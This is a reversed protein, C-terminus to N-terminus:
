NNQIRYHELADNTPDNMYFSDFEKNRGYISVVVSM